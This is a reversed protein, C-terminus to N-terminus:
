EILRFTDWREEQEVEEGRRRGRGAVGGEAGVGSRLRLADDHEVRSRSRTREARRQADARGVDQAISLKHFFLSKLLFCGERVSSQCVFRGFHSSQLSLSCVTLNPSFSLSM